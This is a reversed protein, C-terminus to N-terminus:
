PRVDLPHAQEAGLHPGDLEAGARELLGRALRDAVPDAADLGGVVQDAGAYARLRVGLDHSLELGHDAVLRALLDQLELAAQGLDRDRADAAARVRDAEEGAEE